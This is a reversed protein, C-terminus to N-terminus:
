TGEVGSMDGEQGEVEEDPHFSWGKLKIEEVKELYDQTLVQRQFRVASQCKM